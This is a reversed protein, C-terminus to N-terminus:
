LPPLQETFPMPGFSPAPMIFIPIVPNITALNRLWYAAGQLSVLIAPPLQSPLIREWGQTKLDNIFSTMTTTSAVNGNIMTQINRVPETLGTKSGVAFFGYNAGQPWVFVINKMGNAMDGYIATGPAESAVQALKAVTAGFGLAVVGGPVIASQANLTEPLAAEYGSSTCAGLMSMILVLLIINTYKQM